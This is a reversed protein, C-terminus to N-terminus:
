CITEAQGTTRDDKNGTGPTVIARDHKQNTGLWVL